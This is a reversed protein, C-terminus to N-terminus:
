FPKSSNTAIKDGFDLISPNIGRQAFGQRQLVWVGPPTLEMIFLMLIPMKFLISFHVQALTLYNPENESTETGLILKQLSYNKRAHKEHDPFWKM